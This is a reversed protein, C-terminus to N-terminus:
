KRQNQLEDEYAQRMQRQDELAAAEEEELVKQREQTRETLVQGQESVKAKLEEVAQKLDNIVAKSDKKSMGPLVLKVSPDESLRILTMAMQPDNILYDINDEASPFGAMDKDAMALMRTAYELPKAKEDIPENTPIGEMDVEPLTGPKSYKYTPMDGLQSMMYEEPSMGALRAREAEQQIIPQVRNYEGALPKIEAAVAKLQQNLEVNFARDADATPSADVIKRKQAILDQKQKQLADYQTVVSKAYEPSQRKTELAQADADEQAKQQALATQEQQLRAARKQQDAEKEKEAVETRAGSRESLRGVGGLLHLCALKILQKAM